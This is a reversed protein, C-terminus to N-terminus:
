HCHVLAFSFDDRGAIAGSMSYNNSYKGIPETVATGKVLGFDGIKLCNERGRSFFINSPKLDRHVFSTGERKQHIFCLADLM